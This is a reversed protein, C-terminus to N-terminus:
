INTPAFYLHRDWTRGLFIYFVILILAGLLAACLYKLATFIVNDIPDWFKKFKELTM